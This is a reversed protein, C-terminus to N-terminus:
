GQRSARAIKYGPFHPSDGSQRGRWQRNGANAPRAPPKLQDANTAALARSPLHLRAIRLTTESKRGVQGISQSRRRFPPLAGAGSAGSTIAPWSPPCRTTIAASWAEYASPLGIEGNPQPERLPMPPAQNGKEGMDKDM